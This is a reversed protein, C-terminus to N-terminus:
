LVKLNVNYFSAGIRPIFANRISEVILQKRVVKTRSIEGVIGGKNGIDNEDYLIRFAESENKGNKILSVINEPVEFGSSYGITTRSYRDIVVCCHFDLSKGTLSDKYIGSEVGIGYDRDVLASQARRLAMRQTDNGLPQDTDIDYKDTKEVIFNKMISKFFFSVSSVKLDNQTAIGIRVPVIRHGNSKVEHNLIRTSSLPFLDEALVIPVSVVNLPKLGAEARKKNIDLAVKKTEESVIIFDYNNSSLTSGYKTDLPYISYSKKFKSLYKELRAKRYGYSPARYYKHSKLYKDTTLGVIVEDAVNFAADIMAKHGLHLRSFTGGLVARM